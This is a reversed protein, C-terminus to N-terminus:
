LELAEVHKHLHDHYDAKRLEHVSEFLGASVLMQELTHIAVSNVIFRVPNDPTDLNIRNEKIDENVKKHIKAVRLKMSRHWGKGIEKNFIAELDVSHTDSIPVPNRVAEVVAKRCLSAIRKSFDFKM